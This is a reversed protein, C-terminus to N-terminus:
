FGRMLREAAGDCFRIESSGGKLVYRGAVDNWEWEGQTDGSAAADAAVRLALLVEADLDRDAKGYARPEWGSGDADFAAIRARIRAKVGEIKLSM